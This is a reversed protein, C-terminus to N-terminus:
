KYPKFKFDEFNRKKFKTPIKTKALQYITM